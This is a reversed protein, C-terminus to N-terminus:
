ANSYHIFPCLTDTAKMTAVQETANIRANNNKEKVIKRKVAYFAIDIPKLIAAILTLTSTFSQTILPRAKEDM